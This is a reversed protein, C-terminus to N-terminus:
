RYKTASHTLCVAFVGLIIMQILRFIDSGAAETGAAYDTIETVVIAGITITVAAAAVYTPSPETSSASDNKTAAIRVIGFTVVGVIVALDVWDLWRVGLGTGYESVEQDRVGGALLALVAPSVGLVTTRRVFAIAAGAASAAASSPESADAYAGHLLVLLSYFLMLGAVAFGVGAITELLAARKVAQDSAVVAYNLSASVLGVFAVILPVFSHFAFRAKSDKTFQAAVLAVLGAFAFGALVGALQSYLGATTSFDITDPGQSM